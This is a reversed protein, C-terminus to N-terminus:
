LVFTIRNIWGMLGDPHLFLYFLLIVLILSLLNEAPSVKLLSADRKKDKIFLYYPIKLYFFLSIVTNLLGAIFAVLLIVADTQQYSAWLSSFILLKATFGATPPLGTLSVFAILMGLSPILLVKGMGSFAPIPHSGWSFEFQNLTIFVLLNMILFVTAYFMMFQVGELNFSLIGLLLFGSQAVSSYALMRKPNSQALASLNGFLISAIAIVGLILQWNQGSQGFLNIALTFRTIIALGALKPVVSFFAVVPTPASEYVDPAWLHFPVASIKFLLGSFTFVGGILLLTTHQGILNKIFIESTFDLTHALSYILSMGYIMVATAVTGFLFYKLSGEASKRDFGFGTLMYGSLSILELSLLTTMFNVSMALFCSGLVMALILIFFETSAKERQEKYIIMTLIGGALFLVKFFESFPDKRLMNGFLSLSLPSDSAIVIGAALIMGTFSILKLVAHSQNRKFLGIFLVLLLTTTIIIEPGLQSASEFIHQLQANM